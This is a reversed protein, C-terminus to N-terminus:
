AQLLSVKRQKIPIQTQNSSPKARYGEVSFMKCDKAVLTPEPSNETKNQPFLIRKKIRLNRSKVIKKMLEYATNFKGNKNLRLQREQIKLETEVTELNPEKTKKTKTDGFDIFEICSFM